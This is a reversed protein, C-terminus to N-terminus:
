KNMLYLGLLCVVVGSLNVLSVTEKYILIAVVILAIATLSSHFILSISLPWGAKYMYISGIELGVVTMGMVFATWSVHTWDHAVLAGKNTVFYLVFCCIAGVIYTITLAAMPNINHPTSKSAINYLVNSLVILGLPWYYNFM